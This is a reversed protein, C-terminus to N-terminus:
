KRSKKFERSDPFERSDKVIGPFERFDYTDNLGRYGEKGGGGLFIKPPKGGGESIRFLAPFFRFFDSFLAPIM